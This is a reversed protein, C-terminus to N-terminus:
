AHAKGTVAGGTAEPYILGSGNGLETFLDPKMGQGMRAFPKRDSIGSELSAPEDTKHVDAVLDDDAIFRALHQSSPTNSPSRSRISPIRCYKM